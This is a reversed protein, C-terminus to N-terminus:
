TQLPIFHSTQGHVSTGLTDSPVEFVWIKREHRKNNSKTHPFLSCMGNWEMSTTPTYSVPFAVQDTLHPPHFSSRWTHCPSIDWHVAAGDTIYIHFNKLQIKWGTWSPSIRHEGSKREQHPKIQNVHYPSNVSCARSDVSDLVLVCPEM